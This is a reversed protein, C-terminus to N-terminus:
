LKSEILKIKFNYEKSLQKILSLQQAKKMRGCQITSYVVMGTPSKFEYKYWNPRM